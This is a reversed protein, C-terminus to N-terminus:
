FEGVYYLVEDQPKFARIFVIIDASKNIKIRKITSSNRVRLYLTDGPKIEIRAIEINKPLWYWQRLDARNTYLHYLKIGLEALGGLKQAALYQEVAQITAKILQEKLLLPFRQKFEWAVLRNMDVLRTTKKMERGNSVYLTGAEPQPILWPLSIKVVILTGSVYFPVNFTKEIKKFTMGNLYIIWAYHKKRKIEEQTLLWDDNVQKTAPEKGKILGYTTKFMDAAKLLEGTEYYYIGKLYYVLPNEFDSYPKYYDLVSYAKEIQSVDVEINVNQKKEKPKLEKKKREIEEKFVEKAYGLRELARNLFVNASSTKNLNFFNIAQYIDLFVREYIPPLYENAYNNYFFSILKRRLSEELLEMEYLNITRDAENWWRVSYNLYGAYRAVSGGNLLLFLNGNAKKGTEGLQEKFNEFEEKFFKKDLRGHYFNESKLVLSPIGCSFFLSTFGAILLPLIKKRFVKVTFNSKQKGVM